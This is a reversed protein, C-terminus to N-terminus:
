GAPRSRVAFAREIQEGHNIEVVAVEADVVLQGKESVDRPSSWSSTSLGRSADAIPNLM